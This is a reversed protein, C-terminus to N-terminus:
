NGKEGIRRAAIYVEKDDPIWVWASVSQKEEESLLEDPKDWTTEQTQRNFYYVLGDDTKLEQWDSFQEKDLNKAKWWPVNSEAM